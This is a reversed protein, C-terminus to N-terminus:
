SIKLLNHIQLRKTFMLVSAKVSFRRNKRSEHDTTRPEHDTTRPGHNTTRSEHDTIRPEHETTLTKNNEALRKILVNLMMAIDNCTKLANDIQQENLFGLRVCLLYQTELEAVSGRAISLFNIFEKTSKRQQGEAINSPISVSARKMQDCLSYTETKPMIKMLNYTEVVLNMSKNWVDLDKFNTIMM